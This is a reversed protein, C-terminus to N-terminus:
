LQMVIVGAVILLIGAFNKINLTESRMALALLLTVIPYASTMAVATSAPRSQVAFYMLLLALLSCVSAGFAWGVAQLDIGVAAPEKKALLYWVPIFLIYPISYLWQATYPNTRAVAFKIAVGWIGWLITAGVLLFNDRMTAQNYDLLKLDCTPNALTALWGL